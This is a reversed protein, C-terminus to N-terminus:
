HHLHEIIDRKIGETFLVLGAAFSFFGLIAVIIVLSGAGSTPVYVIASLSIWLLTVGVMKRWSPKMQSKFTDM